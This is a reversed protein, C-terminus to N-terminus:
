PSKRTMEVLVKGMKPYYVLSRKELIKMGQRLKPELESAKQFYQNAKVFNKEQYYVSALCILNDLKRRSTKSLNLAKTFDDIAMSYEDTEFYYSGRANYVSEDKTENGIIMSVDKIAQEYNNLAAYVKSRLLYAQGKMSEYKKGEPICIHGKDEQPPVMNIIKSLDAIANPYDKQQAYLGARSLYALEFMNQWQSCPEHKMKSFKEISLSYDRIAEKYQLLHRYADARLYYADADGPEMEIKRTIDKIALDYQKLKLYCLARGYYAGLYQPNLRLVSDYDRLAQRFRGLSMLADGRALYAQEYQPYLRIAKNYHAIAKNDPKGMGFVSGYSLESAADSVNNFTQANLIRGEHSINFTFKLPTSPCCSPEGSLHLLMDSTVQNLKIMVSNVWERDGIEICDTNVYKGHQSMVVAMTVLTGSGGTGTQLFVIADEKGDGNIDGYAGDAFEAYFEYDKYKKHFLGDEFNMKHGGCKYTIKRLPELKPNSKPKNKVADFSYHYKWTLNIKQATAGQSFVTEPMFAFMGMVCCIIGALSYFFLGRKMMTIEKM